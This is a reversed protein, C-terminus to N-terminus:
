GIKLTETLEYVAVARLKILQYEITSGQQQNKDSKKTLRDDKQTRLNLVITAAKLSDALLCLDLDSLLRIGSAENLSRCLCKM